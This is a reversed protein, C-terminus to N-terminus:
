GPLNIIDIRSRGRIAPYQRSMTAARWPYPATFVEPAVGGADARSDGGLPNVPEVFGDARAGRIGACALPTQSPRRTSRRPRKPSRSRARACHSKEEAPSSQPPRSGAPLVTGLRSGRGRDDGRGQERIPWRAPSPGPGPLPTSRLPARRGSRSGRSARAPSRYGPRDVSGQRRSDVRRCRYRRRGDCRLYRGSSQRRRAATGSRDGSTRGPSRSGRTASKQRPLSRAWCQDAGQAPENACRVSRCTSAAGDPSSPARARSQSDVRSSAIAKHRSRRIRAARRGREQRGGSDGSSAWSRAARPPLSAVHRGPGRPPATPRLPGPAIRRARPARPRRSRPDPTESRRAPHSRPPPPISTRRPPREGRSWRTRRVRIRADHAPPFHPGRHPGTPAPTV